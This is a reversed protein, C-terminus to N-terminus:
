NNLLTDLENSDYANNSPMFSFLGRECIIANNYTNRDLFNKYGGLAVKTLYDKRSIDHNQVNMQNVSSVPIYELWVVPVQYTHGDKGCKPVYTTHEITKYGYAHVNVRDSKGQKTVFETKLIIDTVCEKPMFYSDDYRNALSEAEYNSVNGRYQHKFIFEDTPYQQYLPINLLPAFDFFFNLFYADMYEIFNKKALSYDFHIFKEPNGEFDFGQSHKSYVHNLMKSKVFTFDDGFPLKTKILDCTNKQALPTFLLRFQVEHDRDLAKFM